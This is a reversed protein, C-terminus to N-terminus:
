ASEKSIADLLALPVTISKVIRGTQKGDCYFTLTADHERREILIRNAYEERSPSPQAKQIGRPVQQEWGVGPYTFTQGVSHGTVATSM